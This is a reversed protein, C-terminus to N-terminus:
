ACGIEIWTPLSCGCQAGLDPLLCYNLIGVLLLYQPSLLYSESSCGPQLFYFLCQKKKKAIYQDESEGKM